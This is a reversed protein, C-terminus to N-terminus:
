RGVRFCFKCFQTGFHKSMPGLLTDSRRAAQGKNTKDIILNGVADGLCALDCVQMESLLWHDDDGAGEVDVIAEVMNLLNLM